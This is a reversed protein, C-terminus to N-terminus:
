AGNQMWGVLRANMEELQPGIEFTADPKKRIYDLFAMTAISDLVKAAQEECLTDPLHGHKKLKQVLLVYQRRIKLLCAEYKKSFPSDPFALFAAVAFRWMESTLGDNRYSFHCKTLQSIATKANRVPAELVENGYSLGIEFDDVVVALLLDNKTKFYGYITGASVGAEQAIEELKVAEYGYNRFMLMATNLMAERRERKQKQRLGTM